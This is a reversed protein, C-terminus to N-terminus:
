SPDPGAATCAFMGWPRPKGFPGVCTHLPLSFGDTRAKCSGDTSAFFSRDLHTGNCVDLTDTTGWQVDGPWLKPPSYCKGLPPSYTKCGTSCKDTCVTMNESGRGGGGGGAGYLAVRKFIPDQGKYEGFGVAACSPVLRGSGPPKCALPDLRRVEDIAASTGQYCVAKGLKTCNPLPALAAVDPPPPPPPAAALLLGSAALVAALRLSAAM